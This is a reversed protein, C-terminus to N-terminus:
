EGTGRQPAHCAVRSVKKRFETAGVDVNADAVAPLGVAHWGRAGCTSWREDRNGREPVACGAEARQSEYRSVDRNFLSLTLASDTKVTGVM